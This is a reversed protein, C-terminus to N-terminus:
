KGNHCREFDLCANFLAVFDKHNQYHTAVTPLHTTLSAFFLFSAVLVIPNDQKNIKIDYVIQVLIIASLFYLGWLYWPFKKESKQNVELYGKLRGDKTKSKTYLIVLALENVRVLLHFPSLFKQAILM